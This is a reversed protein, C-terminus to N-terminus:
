PPGEKQASSAQELDHEPVASGQSAMDWCESLMADNLVAFVLAPEVQFEAALTAGHRIPANLLRDRLGRGFTLALDSAGRYSVLEGRQVRLRLRARREALSHLVGRAEALTPM